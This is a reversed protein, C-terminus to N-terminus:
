ARGLAALSLAAARRVAAAPDSLATTLAGIAAPDGLHGLADAAAERAEDSGDALAAAVGATASPGFCALADALDASPVRASGLLAVLPGIAVPDALRVLAAVAAAVVEPAEDDLAAVVDPVAAPDGVKHLVRLMLRRIRPDPDDLRATAAAAADPQRALSWALVDQVAPETESLLAPLLEATTGPTSLAARLRVSPDPHSLQRTLAIAALVEEWSRQEGTALTRLRAALAQETAIQEQLHALHSTLTAAADLDPDALAVAIEALSLGLAKLSQIQLLRLLDAPDYLRYDGGSRAAPTLLGLDDYHRLTRRTLGTRAAVEGIRWSPEPM